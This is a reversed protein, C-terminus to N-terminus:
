GIVPVYTKADDLGHQVGAAQLYIGYGVDMALLTVVAAVALRRRHTLGLGAAVYIVPAALFMVRDWDLAYTLSGVCLVVILLGRWVFDRDRRNLGRGGLALPAALWLPGYTYALRRLEAGWPAYRLITYREKLFPGTYGPIYQRDVAQIQTRLVVYVTVPILCTIVTDRLADRDIPRQAWYLYTFPVLFMTSERVATGLTLTILLAVRQRRVTFLVGLIMVLVSATDISQFHRLIDLWLVPSLAFGVTLGTALKHGIAFERLLVFMGASVAAIGALGLITFNVVDSFPMLHVLWPVAVRYAYPFNHPGGPHDAMSLYFPEDGSAGREHTALLAILGTLGLSLIAVSWATLPPRRSM